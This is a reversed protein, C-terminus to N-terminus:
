PTEIARKSAQTATMAEELDMILSDQTPGKRKPLLAQETMNLMSGPRIKTTNPVVSYRTPELGSLGKRIARPNVLIQPPAGKKSVALQDLQRQLVTREQLAEKQLRYLVQHQRDRQEKFMGNTTAPRQPSQSSRRLMLYNGSM